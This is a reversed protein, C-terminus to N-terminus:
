TETMTDATGLPVSLEGSLLKSLLTDRLTALTRSQHLNSIWRDFLPGVSDAFKEVIASPALVVRTEAVIGKSINQQASGVAKNELEATAARMWLYNFFAFHKKPILACVAQNTTLRTSVLSVQGATAGYLAIVTSLPPVWKASSEALGAETISNEPTTVIPQRVEGSTLWPIDGDEWFRPDNRRPTGGNQIHTCCDKIKGVSWGKPIHGLPSDELHDPFLAATAPDLDPPHRGDLKARVPDFDVFWSQFLARAMAELTANMRRNLEIKGDLAGLIAAIAEQEGIAPLTISLRRQDTLSLYPAMDTSAKMGSLQEVFERGRSWYRLFGGCVRSPNRSRWYSLHPSYVFQPMRETVFATRGTSNGKTTVVTDGAKSLKSAVKHALREHFREVGSFDIHTDTVHGARLFIPGVGGLEDNQARYGDGIELVGDDLLQQFTLQRREGGM